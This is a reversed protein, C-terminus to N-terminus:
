LVEVFDVLGDESRKGEEPMDSRVRHVGQGRGELATDEVRTLVDDLILDPLVIHKDQLLSSHAQSIM